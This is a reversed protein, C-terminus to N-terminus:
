GRSGVRPAIGISTLLIGTFLDLGSTHGIEAIASVGAAPDIGAPPDLISRLATEIRTAARGQAAQALLATSVATTQREAATVLDRGALCVRGRRERRTTRLLALLVGALIDDGSPTAGPGRGLIATPPPGTASVQLYESWWALLANVESEPNRDAVVQQLESIWGLGDRRDRDQLLDIATAARRFVPGDRRIAALERYLGPDPQEADIAAADIEIDTSGGISLVFRNGADPGVARRLRCQDGDTLEDVAQHVASRGNLRIALPGDFESGALLVLPPGLLDIADSVGPEFGLYASREYVQRITGVPVPGGNAANGDYARLVRTWIEAAGRGCDQVTFRRYGRPM